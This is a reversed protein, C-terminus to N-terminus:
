LAWFPLYQPAFVATAAIGMAIGIKKKKQNPTAYFSNTTTFGNISTSYSLTPTMNAISTSTSWNNGSITVGSHNLGISINGFTQKQNIGKTNIYVSQNGIKTSQKQTFHLDWMGYMVRFHTTIKDVSMGPFTNGFDDLFSRDWQNTATNKSISPLTISYFETLFSASNGDIETPNGNSDRYWNGVTTAYWFTNGSGSYALSYSGVISGGNYEYLMDYNDQTEDWADEIMRWIDENFGPNM